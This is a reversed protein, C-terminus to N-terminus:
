RGPRAPKLAYVLLDDQEAASRRADIRVAELAFGAARIEATIGQASGIHRTPRGDDVVVQAAADFRERLGPDLVPGCMTLVVFVGGPKLVRYVAALCQARDDGIICHLCHADVVADHGEDECSRLTVVDDVRFVAAATGTRETAWAVATASIDVGTVACGRAALRLALNGAGCGLELVRVAGAASAAPLAPLVADLMRAYDEEPSWGAAGRARL